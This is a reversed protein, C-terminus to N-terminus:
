KVSTNVECIVGYLPATVHEVHGRSSTQGHCPLLIALILFARSITPAAHGGQRAPSPVGLQASRPQAIALRACLGALALPSSTDPLLSVNGGDTM